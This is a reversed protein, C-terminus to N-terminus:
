RSIEKSAPRLRHVVNRIKNIASEVDICVEANPIRLTSYGSVLLRYDRERDRAYALQGNHEPGDLEVILRGARWVLDVIYHKEGFASLRQNHEFLGRLEADAGLRASVLQEVESGPHPRGVVPGVSVHPADTTTGSLPQSALAARSGPATAGGAGVDNSPADHGISGTRRASHSEPAAPEDLAFTLAGYTVHDLEARGRWAEPILLLTKAQAEHALWEAARALSRLRAPAAEVVDVSLAFVLRAPDLALALQRVQVASAVHRALPLRGGQCRTYAERLWRSSAGPHFTTIRTLLADLNSARQTASEFREEASVYWAPWLSSAAHALADRIEDLERALSPAREWELEVLTPVPDLEEAAARIQSRAVAVPECFLTTVRGLEAQELVESANAVTTRWESPEPEGGPFGVAASAFLNTGTV